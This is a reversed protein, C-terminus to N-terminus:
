GVDVDLVIGCHTGVLAVSYLPLKILQIIMPSREDLEVSIYIAPPEILVIFWNWPHILSCFLTRFTTYSLFLSHFIILLLFLAHTHCLYSSQVLYVLWKPIVSINTWSYRTGKCSMKRLCLAKEGIEMNGASM